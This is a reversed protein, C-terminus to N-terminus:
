VMVPILDGNFYEMCMSDNDMHQFVRHGGQGQELTESYVGNVHWNTFGSLKVRPAPLAPPLVENSTLESETQESAPIQLATAARLSKKLEREFNRLRETRKFRKDRESCDMAAAAEDGGTNLQKQAGVNKQLQAEEAGDKAIAFESIKFRPAARSDSHLLQLYHVVFLAECLM